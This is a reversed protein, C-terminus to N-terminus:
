QTPIKFYKNKFTKLLYWKPHKLM